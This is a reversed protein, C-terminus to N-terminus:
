EGVPVATQSAKSRSAADLASQAQTLRASWRPKLDADPFRRVLERYAAIAASWRHAAFLQEARRTLAEQTSAPSEERKSEPARDKERRDQKREDQEREDQEAAMEKDVAPAGAGIDEDRVAKKAVTPKAPAAKAEAPAAARGDLADDSLKRMRQPASSAVPEARPAPPPAPPSTRTSPGNGPAGGKWDSPPSAFASAPAAPQAQEGRAGLSSAAGTGGASISGAGEQSAAGRLLTERERHKRILSESMRKGMLGGLAPSVGSPALARARDTAAALDSASAANKALAEDSRTVAAPQPEAPALAERGREVTRQPDLFVKSALLVVAVAGVTALTPFTWRGRLREWWSPVPASAAAERPVVVPAIAQAAAELIRAHARAPVPADDSAGDSAGDLAVRLRARTAGLSALEARCDACTAVHAELAAREAPTAEDYVLELLRANTE